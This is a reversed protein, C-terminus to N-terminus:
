RDKNSKSLLSSAFEKTENSYKDNQLVISTKQKMYEGTQKSKDAQAMASAALSKKIKSANPDSLIQAAKSAVQKSTKKTNM